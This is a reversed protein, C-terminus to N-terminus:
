YYKIKNFYQIAELDVYNYYFYFIFSSNFYLITPPLGNM